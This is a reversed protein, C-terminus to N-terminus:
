KAGLGAIYDALVEIEKDPVAQAAATMNGDMEGRKGAKFARLQALLYEYQQGALRPMQQQGLLQAGHCQTCNFKKALEPGVKANEANARHRAPAAPQKSFYAALENFDSNSLPAAMPTMQPDKRYGERFMYLATSLFQAPQGAISPVAPNTSNGGEGHCAACANPDAASAATAFLFAVALATANRLACTV